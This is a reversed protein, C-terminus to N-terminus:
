RSLYLGYAAPSSALLSTENRFGRKRPASLIIVLHGFREVKQLLLLLSVAGDPAMRPAMPHLPRARVLDQSCALVSVCFTIIIATIVIKTSKTNKGKLFLRDDIM